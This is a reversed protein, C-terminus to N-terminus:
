PFARQRKSTAVPLTECKTVLPWDDQDVKRWDGYSGVPSATERPDSWEGDKQRTSTQWVAIQEGHWLLTRRYESWPGRPYALRMEITDGPRLRMSEIREIDTM